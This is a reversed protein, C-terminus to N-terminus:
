RSGASRHARAPAPASESTIILNFWLSVSACLLCPRIVFVRFSSFYSLFRQSRVKHMKKTTEYKRTKTIRGKERTIRRLRARGIRRFGVKTEQRRQAETDRHNM